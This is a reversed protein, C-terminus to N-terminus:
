IVPKQIFYLVQSFYTFLTLHFQLVVRVKEVFIAMFFFDILFTESCGHYDFNFLLVTWILIIHQHPTNGFGFRLFKMGCVSMVFAAGSDGFLFPFYITVNVEALFYVKLTSLFSPNM